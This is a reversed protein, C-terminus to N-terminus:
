THLLSISSIVQNHLGLAPHKGATSNTEILYAPTQFIWTKSKMLELAKRPEARTIHQYPYPM